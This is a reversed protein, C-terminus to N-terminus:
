VFIEVLKGIGSGYQYSVSCGVEVEHASELAIAHALSVESSFVNKVRDVGFANQFREWVVSSDELEVAGMFGSVLNTSASAVILGMFYHMKM